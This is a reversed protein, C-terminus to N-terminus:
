ERRRIDKHTIKKIYLQHINEINSLILQNKKDALILQIYQFIFIVVCEHTFRECYILFLIFYYKFFIFPNYIYM